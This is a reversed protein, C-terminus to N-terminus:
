NGTGTLPVSQPSGAASDTAVLSAAANGIKTPKFAISITCSASAALTTVCTKSQISFESAGAGSFTYSSVTASYQTSTNTVTLVQSPSSVNLPTAPFTLSTPSFTLTVPPPLATGSLSVSQPSRVANDTAVLKASRTGLTGTASPHFAISLNCSAGSALTHNCTDGIIFFDDPNAGTFSYSIVAIPTTASTNTVALVQAGSTGEVVIAPFTLSANSFTITPTPDAIGTVPVSQPSGSANDIAVLTANATGSVTTPKFVISLTCSAGVNLATDCTKSQISFETANPGSFKYSTVSIPTTNSTNTVTLTQPASTVGPGTGPFALSTPSFALTPAPDAIGAVPISQPSGAANDTAILTASENGSASPQFAVSLTCSAGAALSPLCTKSQIFFDSANPGSFNYSTVSVPATSTNTVTLMEPESTTTPATQLFSLSTPSFALTPTGTVTATIAIFQLRYPVTTVNFTVNSPNTATTPKFAISYTCSAGATLTSGCTQATVNFESAGIGSFAYPSISISSTGTSTITVLQAPSTSNLATPPFSLSAPTIAPSGAASAICSQAAGSNRVASSRLGASATPHPLIFRAPRIRQDPSVSGSKSASGTANKAANRANLPLQISHRNLANDDRTAAVDGFPCGPFVYTGSASSPAYFQDGSYYVTWNDTITEWPAGYPIGGTFSFSDAFSGGKSSNPLPQSCPYDVSCLFMSGDIFTMMGTPPPGGNGSLTANVNVYFYDGGGSYCGYTGTGTASTTAPTLPNPLSPYPTNNNEGALALKSIFANSVPTTDASSAAESAKAASSRAALAPTSGGGNHQSRSQLAPASSRTQAAETQPHRGPAAFPQSDCNGPGTVIGSLTSPAYISDGSYVATWSASQAVEDASTGDLSATATGPGAAVPSIAAEGVEFSGNFSVSGTPSPGSSDSNIQLNVFVSYGPFQVECAFQQSIISLSTPINVAPPSDLATQFAGTTTPFNASNATGTLYANGSSDLAIANAADNGSGGLLSAYQFVSAAPDLKVVFASTGTSTPTPLADPTSVFGYYAGAGTSPASGAVYLDGATDVALGAIATSQGELFTSYQLASGDQNLKTVFGITAGNPGLYNGLGSSFGEVVGDTLPFDQSETVGGLYAYGQSDLALAHISEGFSGGLYTSYIEASGAPNLKTVFGTPSGNGSNNKNQTQYSSQTVPFNVSGTSGAIYADGTSDIAIANGYDGTGDAGSGGLYTSYALTTGIPSLKTVFANSISQLGAFTPQFAAATTPFNASFTYGTVYANGSPDVAIAQAVDGSPAQTSQNGSGGLYTSYILAGGGSVLSAVFATPAGATTSPNTTQYAGCTTPFDTSYTAGTIYPNGNGDLAIAYGADGGSGGLFTSFLLTAGTPDLGSVFVTSSGAPANDTSQFAGSQIPFNTSYTTGVVFANGYKDVAIGNGQDGHTGSGSGGLYTSYVLVPDIILPQSHDYRGLTFTIKNDALLKYASQIAIRRGGIEQYTVPKLLRLSPQSVSNNANAKEAALILDGTAPDITLKNSNQAGTLALVIQAPDANPAVIFDHELQRQHGYYVLDIGDYASKYYVRSYNPINTRWKTPDSGLFYNSKTVQQDEGTVAQGPKSGVLAMRLLSTQQARTDASEAPGQLALVAEGQRLFLTYGQGHALFQVSPHTQGQNAEFSLPLKGYATAPSDQRTTTTQAALTVALTLPALLVASISFVPLLRM